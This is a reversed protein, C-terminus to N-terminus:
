EERHGIPIRKSSERRWRCWPFAAIIQLTRDRMFDGMVELRAWDGEEWPAERRIKRGWPSCNFRPPVGAPNLTSRRGVEACLETSLAHLWNAMRFSSGAQFPM